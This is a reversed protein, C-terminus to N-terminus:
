CYMIMMMILKHTYKEDIDGEKKEIVLLVKNVQRV